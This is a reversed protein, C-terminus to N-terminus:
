VVVELISRGNKDTSAVINYTGSEIFTAEFVATGSNDATAQYQNGKVEFTVLQDPTVLATITAILGAIAASLQTRPYFVLQGDQLEVSGAEQILAIVEADQEVWSLEGDKEEAPDGDPCVSNTMSRLMKGAALDFILQLSM